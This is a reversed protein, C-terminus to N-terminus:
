LQNMSTLNSQTHSATNRLFYITITLPHSSCFMCPLPTVVLDWMTTMTNLHSRYSSHIRKLDRSNFHKWSITRSREKEPFLLRNTILQDFYMVSTFRFGDVLVERVTHGYLRSAHQDVWGAPVSVTVLIFLIYSRPHSNSFLTFLEM